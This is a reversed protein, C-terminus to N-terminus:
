RIKVQVLEEGDPDTVHVACAICPDFSHITRLIELPQKADHMQHNDQLAAEYPGAQGQNDRPGANWTSPVVAQYNDIKSNKIVIWHALGGRPAEMFGVGKATSPWSSPEWLTENFTKSDGAKINAVLNDYWTQMMDAIIKTELTRAATRGLTSFLAEIPADLKKLAYHTLEKTPEHGKAYLMLVRALPGVEMVKGKWRPSKLWSYSQDVDLHDYPPQPGTYNLETEGDYPHLGKDKGDKYDYWSHAVYEQIENEANMDVEHITSLDRNLIAGSPILWSAPDDMGKEPFDGVTLFNGVGEGRSFWDKYFGAIALTDPVYVQDVFERMHAIVDQVQALRKANIASDSNLDIPCPVGGVLFNPHPNKGGFITHLKVVNRQWELADLYHSVAMLNAEPPLKYAPHGWYAKAFIGLQGSEVFKKLKTQQDAFYGPSSRPYHSLSQALEATAKPNAKLASVVDVWDLAHLHYFHMVHDHVYQAAIMLNRILQANPPISYNLADEVARVSAIGHVLTCVGCIRQAYAWADRPDRGRLIIEIGRVMTGSSYAQQITQGDMQAEIRLHGEIRTIPDVVIRENM